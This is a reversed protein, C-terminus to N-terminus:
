TEEVGFGLLSPITTEGDGMTEPKGALPRIELYIIKDVIFVATKLTM